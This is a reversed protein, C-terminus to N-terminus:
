YLHRRNCASRPPSRVSLVASEACLLVTSRRTPMGAITGYADADGVHDAMERSIELVRKLHSIATQYQGQALLAVNKSVVVRVQRRGAPVSILCRRVLCQSCHPFNCPVFPPWHAMDVHYSGIYAERLRAMMWSVKTAFGLCQVPQCCRCLCATALRGLAQRPGQSHLWSILSVVTLCATAFRDHYVRSVSAPRVQIRAAAALGRVARREQVRNGLFKALM